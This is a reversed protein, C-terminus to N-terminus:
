TSSKEKLVTSFTKYFVSNSKARKYKHFYLLAGVLFCLIALAAFGYLPVLVFPSNYKLDLITELKEYLGTLKLVAFLAAIFAGACLTFKIYSSLVYKFIPYKEFIKKM